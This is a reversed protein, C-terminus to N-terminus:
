HKTKSVFSPVYNHKCSTFCKWPDHVDKQGKSQFISINNLQADM